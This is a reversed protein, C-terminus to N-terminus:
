SADIKKTEEETEFELPLWWIVVKGGVTGGDV